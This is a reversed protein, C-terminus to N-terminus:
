PKADDAPQLGADANRLGFRPQRDRKAAHELANEPRPRGAINTTVDVLGGQLESRGSLAHRPKTSSKGLRELQEQRRDDEDQEDTARVDCIEQERSGCRAPAFDIQTKREAHAPQPQNSLQHRLAQHERRHARRKTEHERPQAPFREQTQNRGVARSSGHRDFSIELNIANTATTDTAVASRKPDTGAQRDSRADSTVDSAVLRPEPM